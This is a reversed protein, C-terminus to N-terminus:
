VAAGTRPRVWVELRDPQLTVSLLSHLDAVVDDLDVSQELKSSFGNVIKTADYRARNFRRDIAYQVRRLLPRALAAAVLTATAVALANSDPLLRTATAIIAVYTALLLGSVVTYSATRSIIRDIDYLRYRTLALTIALPPLVITLFLGVVNTTFWAVTAVVVAFLFWKLQERETDASRWYRIGLSPISSLMGVTFCGVFVLAGVKVALADTEGLRFAQGIILGAAGVALARVTWRWAGTPPRGTPFLHILFAFGAGLALYLMVSVQSWAGDSGGHWQSEAVQSIAGLLLVFALGLMVRPMMHGPRRWLLLCGLALYLDGWLSTVAPSLEGSPGSPYVLALATVSVGFSLMAGIAVLLWRRSM